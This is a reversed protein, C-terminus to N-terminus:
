TIGDFLPNRPPQGNRTGSNWDIENMVWTCWKLHWNLATANKGSKALWHNKFKEAVIDIRPPVLGKALAYAFDKETPRWDDPLRSARERGREKKSIHAEDRPSSKHRDTVTQSAEIGPNTPTVVDDGTVTQSAKGARWKRTRIAAKSPAVACMENGARVVLVAADAPDMGGAILARTLEAVASM